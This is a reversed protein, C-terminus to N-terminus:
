NRELEVAGNNLVGKENLQLQQEVEQSRVQDTYHQARQLQAELHDM